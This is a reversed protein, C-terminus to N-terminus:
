GVQVVRTKVIKDHWCQRNQDWLPWLFNLLGPLIFALFFLGWLVPRMAARWFGVPQGSYADRLAIGTAMKGLTQGRVSGDLLGYYVATVVIGILEVVSSGMGFASSTSACSQSTASTCGVAVHASSVGIISFIIILPVSVVLSDIIYAGVRRWWGSSTTAMQGYGYQGGYAGYGPPPGGPPPGYAGYGPPPGGPPPGYAGYGPPPGGPPTIDPPEPYNAPPPLTGFGPPPADDASPWPNSTPSSQTADSAGTSSPAHSGQTDDPQQPDLQDSM